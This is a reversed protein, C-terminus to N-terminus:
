KLASPYDKLLLQKVSNISVEQMTHSIKPFQIWIATGLLILITLTALSIGRNIFKDEKEDVPQNSVAPCEKKLLSSWTSGSELWLFSLLNLDCLSEYRTNTKSRNEKSM